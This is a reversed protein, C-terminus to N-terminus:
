GPFISRVTPWISTTKVPPAISKEIHNKEPSMFVKSVTKHQKRVQTIVTIIAMARFSIGGAFSYEVSGYM